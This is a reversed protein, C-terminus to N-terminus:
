REDEDPWGVERDADDGAEACSHPWSLPPTTTRGSPASRSRRSSETRGLPRSRALRGPSVSFFCRSLGRVVRVVRVLPGPATLSTLTTPPTRCQKETM